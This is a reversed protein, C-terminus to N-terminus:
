SAGRCSNLVRTPVFITAKQAYQSKKPLPCNTKCVARLFIRMKDFVVFISKYCDVFRKTCIKWDFAFVIM